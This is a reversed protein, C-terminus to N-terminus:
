NSEITKTFFSFYLINHILLVETDTATFDRILHSQMLRFTFSENGRQICKGGGTLHLSTMVDVHTEQATDTSFLWSAFELDVEKLCLKFATIM